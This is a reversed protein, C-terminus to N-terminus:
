MDEFQFADSYLNDLSVGHAVLQDRTQYVLDFPGSIVMQWDQLDAAHRSLVLSAPTQKDKSSLLSLYQFQHVHNQWQKVKEDLYLDSQTRANWILEFRRAEGWVLLQEIMAHVPAFGTGAAIFLIPKIPDLHRFHCEGFPARLTLVGKQKIEDLLRQDAPNDCRHRIHLEYQRLGLPANAISYCLEADGLLLQLYQGATYDIYDEPALVLQLITDTLPNMQVVTAKTERINM